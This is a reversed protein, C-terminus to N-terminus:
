SWTEKKKKRKKKDDATVSNEGQQAQEPIDVGPWDLIFQQNLRNLNKQTYQDIYSQKAKGEWLGVPGAGLIWNRAGRWTPCRLEWVDATEAVGISILSDHPWQWQEARIPVAAISQHADQVSGFWGDDYAQSWRPILRLLVDDMRTQGTTLLTAPFPMDDARWRDFGKSHPQLVTTTPEWGNALDIAWGDDPQMAFSEHIDVHPRHPWLTLTVTLQAPTANFLGGDGSFRYSQKVVTAIPGQSIIETRHDVPRSESLWRAVGREPTWSDEGQNWALHKIAPEGTEFPLTLAIFENKIVIDRDRKALSLPSTYSIAQPANGPHVEITVRSHPAISAAVWLQRDGDVRIVQSPINTDGIRCHFAEDPIDLPVHVPEFQWEYSTPNTLDWTEVSLIPSTVLLCSMLYCALLLPHPTFLQNM